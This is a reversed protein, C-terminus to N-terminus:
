MICCGNRKDLKTARFFFFFYIQSSPIFQAVAKYRLRDTDWNKIGLTLCVICRSICTFCLLLRSSNFTCKMFTWKLGIFESIPQLGWLYHKVWDSILMTGDGRCYHTPFFAGFRDDPVQARCSREREIESLPWHLIAASFEKFGFM